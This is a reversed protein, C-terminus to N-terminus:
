KKLGKSQGKARTDNPIAGGKGGVVVEEVTHPKKLGSLAKQTNIFHLEYTINSM